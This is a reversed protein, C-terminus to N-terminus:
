SEDRRTGAQVASASLFGLLAGLVVNFSQAALDKRAKFAASEQKLADLFHERTPEKDLLTVVERNPNAAPNYPEQFFAIYGTVSFLTAYAFLIGVWVVTRFRKPEKSNGQTAPVPLQQDENPM